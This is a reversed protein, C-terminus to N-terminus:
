SFFCIAIVIVMWVVFKIELPNNHFGTMSQGRIHLCFFIDLNELNYNTLTACVFRCLLKVPGGCNTPKPKTMWPSTTSNNRASSSRLFAFDLPFTRSKSLEVVFASRCTCITAHQLFLLISFFQWFLARIVYTTFANTAFTYLAAVDRPRNM